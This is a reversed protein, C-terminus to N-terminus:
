RVALVVVGHAIQESVLSPGGIGKRLFIENVAELILNCRLINRRQQSLGVVGRCFPQGFTRKKAPLVGM